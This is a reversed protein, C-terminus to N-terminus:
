GYKNGVCLLICNGNYTFNRLIVYYIRMSTRNLDFCM